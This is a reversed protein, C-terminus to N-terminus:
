RTQVAWRERRSRSAQIQVCIRIVSVCDGQSQIGLLSEPGAGVVGGSSSCSLAMAAVANAAAETGLVAERLTGKVGQLKDDIRHM